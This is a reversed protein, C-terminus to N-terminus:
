FLHIPLVGYQHTPTAIIPAFALNLLRLLPIRRSPGGPPTFRPTLRPSLGGSAVPHTTSSTPRGRSRRGRDLVRVVGAVRHWRAGYSLRMAISPQPVCRPRLLLTVAVPEWRSSTVLMVGPTSRDWSIFIGGASRRRRSRASPVGVPGGSSTGGVNGRRGSPRGEVHEVPASWPLLAVGSVGLRGVADGDLTPVGLARSGSPIAEISVM